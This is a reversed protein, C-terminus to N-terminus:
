RQGQRYRRLIIGVRAGGGLGIQVSPVVRRRVPPTEVDVVVVLSERWPEGSVVGASLGGGISLGWPTERFPDLLFRVVADVRASGHDVSNQRRVGGAGVLGLRAYYGLPIGVGLGVHVTGTHTSRVDIADIRLEPELPARQAPAQAHTRSSAAMLAVLSVLWTRRAARPPMGHM